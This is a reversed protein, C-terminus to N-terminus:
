LSEPQRSRLQILLPGRVTVFFDRITEPWERGDFGDAFSFEFRQLLACVVIMMEQKALARGVCNSPGFSFPIFANSRTHIESKIKLWREPM